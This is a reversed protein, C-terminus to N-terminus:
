FRLEHSRSDLILSHILLCILLCFIFFFFLNSSVGFQESDPLVDIWLSCRYMMSVRLILHLVIDWTGAHRTGRSSQIRIRMSGGASSISPLSRRFLVFCCYCRFSKIDPGAPESRRSFVLFTTASCSHHSFTSSFFLTLLSLFLSLQLSSPFLPSLDLCWGFRWKSKWISM